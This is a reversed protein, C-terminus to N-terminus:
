QKSEIWWRIRESKHHEMTNLRITILQRWNMHHNSRNIVQTNSESESRIVNVLMTNRVIGVRQESDM